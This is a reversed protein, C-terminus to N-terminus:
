NICKEVIREYDIMNPLVQRWYQNHKEKDFRYKGNKDYFYVKQGCDRVNSLDILRRQGKEYKENIYDLEGVDCRRDIENETVGLRDMAEQTYVKHCGELSKAKTVLRKPCGLYKGKRDVYNGPCVTKNDGFSERFYDKVKCIKLSSYYDFPTLMKTSKPKIIQPRSLEKFLSQDISEKLNRIAAKHRSDLTTTPIKLARSIEKFEMKRLTMDGDNNKYEVLDLERMYIVEQQKPKLEGIKELIYKAKETEFENEIYLTEPNKDNTPIDVVDFNGDYYEVTKHRWKDYEPKNDEPRDGCRWYRLVRCIKKYREPDIEYLKRM